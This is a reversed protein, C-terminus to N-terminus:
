APLTTAAAYARRVVSESWVPRGTPTVIGEDTFSRAIAAFSQGLQREEVIRRRVSAPMSSPRGIQKGNARARELGERTRSRIMELELEAFTAMMQAMAKGTPTSLDLGIDLVVLSWGQARATDMIDSANRVSRAVRDMKSVILADAQGTRLLELARRLGENVRDGHQGEDAIWEVTWGNCRAAEEISHRQAALGNGSEAQEKTSVRLYGIVHANRAPSM